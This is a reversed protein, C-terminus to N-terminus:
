GSVPPEMALDWKIFNICQKKKIRIKEVIQEIQCNLLNIGKSTDVRIIEHGTANVIDNERLKDKEVQGLHYSEDVEIHLSLQPFYLDTLARGNPRVIYQQTIIKIDLDDLHHWIRTVVYQEFRKRYTRALQRSIFDLKEVNM